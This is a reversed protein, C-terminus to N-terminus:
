VRSKSYIKIIRNKLLIIIQIFLLKYEITSIYFVKIYLFRILCYIIAINMKITYYQMESHPIMLSKCRVYMCLFLSPQISICKNIFFFIDVAVLNQYEYFRLQLNTSGFTIIFGHHAPESNLRGLSMVYIPIAHIQM